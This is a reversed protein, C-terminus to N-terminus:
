KGAGPMAPLQQSAPVSSASSASSTAPTASASSAAGSVPTASATSTGSSGSPCISPIPLLGCLNTLLNANVTLDLNAYDGYLINQTTGIPFPYSLMVQLAKPITTGVKNLNELVPQLNQLTAIFNDKSANIVGTATNGLTALSSVLQVLKPEEDNLVQLAQPLTQLTAVITAKQARLTAALTNINALATTIQTTNESLSKAFTNLTGILDRVDGQRGNLANNLESTITSIQSLGGGNLLLSLAGLVQEVEPASSTRSLPITAGHALRQTSPTTLPSGLSVYKEGLLSTMQISAVANAPLSVDGRVKVTVLATWGTLKVEDVKGVPVDNVKVASQPVLDLVNAFEIKLKYPHDGLNAGGPLQAGYLGHFGCGTLVLTTALLLAAVWRTRKAIM